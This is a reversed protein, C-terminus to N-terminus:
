TLFGLLNTIKEESLLESRLKEQKKSMIFGLFSSCRYFWSGKEESGYKLSVAVSREIPTTRNLASGICLYPISDTYFDKKPLEENQQQELANWFKSELLAINNGCFSNTLFYRLM